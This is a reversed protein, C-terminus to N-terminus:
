HMKTNIKDDWNRVREKGFSKFEQVPFLYIFIKSALGLSCSISSFSEGSSIVLM